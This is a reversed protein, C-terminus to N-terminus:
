RPRMAADHGRADVASDRLECPELGFAKCAAGWAAEDAETVADWDIDDPYLGFDGWAQERLLDALAWAPSLRALHARRDGVIAGAAEIARFWDAGRVEFDFDGSPPPEEGAAIAVAGKRPIQTTWAAQRLAELGVVISSPAAALLARPWDEIEIRV